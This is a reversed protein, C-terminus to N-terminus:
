CRSNLEPFTRHTLPAPYTGGNIDKITLQLADTLILYKQSLLGFRSCVREMEVKVADVEKALELAAHASVSISPRFQDDSM